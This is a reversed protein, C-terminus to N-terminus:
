CPVDVAAFVLNKQQLFMDLYYGTLGVLIGFLAFLLPAYKYFVRM